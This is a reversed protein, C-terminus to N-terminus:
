AGSAALKPKAIRAIVFAHHLAFRGFQVTIRNLNQFVKVYDELREEEVCDAYDELREELPAYDELREEEEFM